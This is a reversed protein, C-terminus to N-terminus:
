HVQGETPEVGSWMTGLRIANFGWDGLQKQRAPDLMKPDYRLFCFM